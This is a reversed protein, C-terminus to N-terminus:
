HKRRYLKTLALWIMILVIWEGSGTESTDSNSEEGVDVEEAELDLFQQLPSYQTDNAQVEVRNDIWKMPLLSHGSKYVWVALMEDTDIDPYEDILNATCNLALSNLYLENRCYNDPKGFSSQMWGLCTSQSQMYNLCCQEEQQNSWLGHEIFCEHLTPSNEHTNTDNDYLWDWFIEMWPNVPVEIDSDNSQNQIGAVWKNLHMPFPDQQLANNPMCNDGQM